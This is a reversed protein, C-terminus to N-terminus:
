ASEQDPRAGAATFAANNKDEPCQIQFAGRLALPTLLTTFLVVAVMVAVEPSKFIGSSAGMATVILGVEGRSVM